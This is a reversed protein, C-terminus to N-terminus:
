NGNINIWFMYIMIIFTLLLKLFSVLVHLYKMTIIYHYNDGKKRNSTQTSWRVHSQEEWLARKWAMGSLERESLQLM